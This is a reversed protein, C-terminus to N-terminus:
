NGMWMAFVFVRLCLPMATKFRLSALFAFACLGGVCRLFRLDRLYVCIAMGSVRACPSTGATTPRRDPVAHRPCWESRLRDDRLGWGAAQARSSRLGRWEEDNTAPHVAGRREFFSFPCASGVRGPCTTGPPLAATVFAQTRLLRAERRSAAITLDGGTGGDIM